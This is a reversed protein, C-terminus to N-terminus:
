NAQPSTPALQVDSSAIHVFGAGGGGGGGGGKDIGQVAEGTATEQSGGRGGDVGDAFHGAGGNARTTAISGVEGPNRPRM